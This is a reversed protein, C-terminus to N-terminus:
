WNLRALIGELNYVQTIHPSTFRMFVRSSSPHKQETAKSEKAIISRIISTARFYDLRELLERESENGQHKGTVTLTVVKTVGKVTPTVPLTAVKTVGIATPTVPMTVVNTAGIGTPTVSLTVVNTVGIV